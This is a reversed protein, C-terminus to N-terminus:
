CVIESLVRNECWDWSGDPPIHEEACPFETPEVEGGAHRIAQFVKSAVEKRDEPVQDWCRKNPLGFKAGKLSARTTLFKSYDVTQPQSPSCTSSDREDTGVIANFGYVADAVTRGFSGITDMNESIPIVGSRSTLGVTPKIGVVGNM